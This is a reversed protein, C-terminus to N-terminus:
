IHIKLLGFAAAILAVPLLLVLGGAFLLCLVLVPCALVLLITAIMKAVGWAAKFALGIVKFFLWCCLITLGIKLM